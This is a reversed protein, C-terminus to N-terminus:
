SRKFNITNLKVPINNTIIFYNRALVAEEITKFSGWGYRKGNYVLVWLYTKAKKNIIIGRFGTKNNAKILRSNNVNVLSTTFRCNKPEYNGDNNIRDIQLGKKYKHIAWNYFTMFDNLWEDCITIGRGGYYKYAKENKNYCRSRMGRYINYIKTRSLGHIKKMENFLLVGEQLKDLTECAM